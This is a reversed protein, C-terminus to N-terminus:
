IYFTSFNLFYNRRWFTLWALLKTPDTGIKVSFERANTLSNRQMEGLIYDESFLKGVDERWEHVSGNESLLSYLNRFTNRHKFRSGASETETARCNVHWFSCVFDRDIHEEKTVNLSTEAETHHLETPAPPSAARSKYPNFPYHHGDDGSM